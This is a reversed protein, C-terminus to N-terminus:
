KIQSLYKFDKDDTTYYKEHVKIVNEKHSKLYYGHKM